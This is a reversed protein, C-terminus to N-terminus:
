TNFFLTSKHKCLVYSYWDTSSCCTYVFRIGRQIYQKQLSHLIYGYGYFNLVGGVSGDISYQSKEHALGLNHGIEHVLTTNSCSVAVLSFGKDKGINTSAALGCYRNTKIYTTALDAQYQKRKERAGAFLGIAVQEEVPSAIARITVGTQSNLHVTNAYAIDAYIKAKLQDDGGMYAMSEQTYLALLTIENNTSTAAHAINNLKFFDLFLAAYAKLNSYLRMDAGQQSRHAFHNDSVSNMEGDEPFIKLLSQKEEAKEVVDNVLPPLTNHDIKRILHKDKSLYEIRYHDGAMDITGFLTSKYFSLHVLQDIKGEIQGVWVFEGKSRFDTRKQRVSISKSNPLPITIADPLKSPHEVEKFVDLNM